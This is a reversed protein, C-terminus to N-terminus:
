VKNTRADVVETSAPFYKVVRWFLGSPFSCSDQDYASWESAVWKFKNEPNGEENFAVYRVLGSTDVLLERYISLAVEPPIDLCVSKTNSVIVKMLHRSPGSNGENM